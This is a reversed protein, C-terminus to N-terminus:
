LPITFYFIFLLPPSLQHSNSSPFYHPFSPTTFFGRAESRSSLRTWMRRRVYLCPRARALIESGKGERREDFDYEATTLLNTLAGCATWVFSDYLPGGQQPAFTENALYDSLLRLLIHTSTKVVSPDTSSTTASIAKAVAEYAQYARGQDCEVSPGGM